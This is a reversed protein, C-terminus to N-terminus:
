RFVVVRYAGVVGGPDSRPVESVAVRGDDTGAQRFFVPGTTECFTELRSAGDGSGNTRFLLAGFLDTREDTQRAGAGVILTDGVLSMGQLHHPGRWTWALRLRDKEVDFAFLGNANPHAAPPRLEPSAAGYPIGSRSTLAYLREGSWILHGVSAAIPIEGALIPTGLDHTFGEGSEPRVVVRGDGLGVFLRDRDLGVAEWIFSREYWPNLPPISVEGVEVLTDTSLLALGNIPLDEPAPGDASRSVSIAVKAGAADVAASLFVADAAGSAPWTAMPELDANLRMVVSQNRRVGDSDNWGHAAAVLLGGDPMPHMWYAAPLTYVGYLDDGSPPASSHIWDAMRVQVQTKLDRPDLSLVHADPSQEAAFLVSGDSSWALQKVLTEALHRRALVEGTWADVVLVDGLYSGIALRTGDPSFALATDPAEGGMSIHRSVEGLPVEFLAVCAPQTPAVSAGLTDGPAWSRPSFVGDSIVGGRVFHPLDVDEPAGRCGM